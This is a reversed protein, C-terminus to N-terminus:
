HRYVKQTEPTESSKHTVPTKTSKQLDYTKSSKAIDHAETSRQSDPVVNSKHSDSAETFKHSDHTETPEHTDHTATEQSEPFKSSWTSGYSVSGKTSKISQNHGKTKQSRNTNHHSLINPTSPHSASPQKIGRCTVGRKTLVCIQNNQCMLRRLKGDVWALIVGSKGENECSAKESEQTKSSIKVDRSKSSKNSKNDETIHSHSKTLPVKKESSMSQHIHRSETISSPGSKSNTRQANSTGYESKENENTTTNTDLKPHTNTNDTSSTTNIKSTTPARGHTKPLDITRTKKSPTAIASPTQLGTIELVCEIGFQGTEANQFNVCISNQVCTNLIMEGFSCEEYPRGYGSETCAIDYPCTNMRSITKEAVVMTHANTIYQTKKVESGILSVENLICNGKNCIYGPLCAVPQWGGWDTCVRGSTDSYCSYAGVKCRVGTPAPIYASETVIPGLPSNCAAINDIGTYCELGQACTHQIIIGNVCINLHINSACTATYSSDCTADSVKISTAAVTKVSKSTYHIVGTPITTAIDIFQCISDQNDPVCVYQIRPKKQWPCEYIIWKGGLCKKYQHRKGPVCSVTGDNCPALTTVAVGHSLMSTLGTITNQIGPTITVKRPPKASAYEATLLLLAAILAPWRPKFRM